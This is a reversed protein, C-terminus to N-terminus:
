IWLTLRCYTGSDQPNCGGIPFSCKKWWHEVQEIPTKVKRFGAEIAAANASLEGAKVRDFLAPHKRKLRDLTYARSNGQMQKGNTQIVNNDSSAIRKPGPKLNGGERLTVELDADGQIAIIKCLKDYDIELGIPLSNWSRESAWRAQHALPDLNPM